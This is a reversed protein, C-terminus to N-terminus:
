GVSKVELVAAIESGNWHFQYHGAQIAPARLLSPRLAAVCEGGPHRLSKYLIGLENQRRLDEAIAQAHSFSDPTHAQADGRLDVVTGDATCKYCRMTLIQSPEGTASLLRARSFKSESLATEFSLGAYYVGYHGKTFRSAVGIHTFAAMIATSGCGTVRDEAAVLSIDGAQDRLRDNTISELAYAAELEGPDLLNEFLQIPPFHSPILRYTDGRLTVKDM